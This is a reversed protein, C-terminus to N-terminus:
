PKLLERFLGIPAYGFSPTAPKAVIEGPEDVAVTGSDAFLQTGVINVPSTTHLAINGSTASVFGGDYNLSVWGTTGSFGGLLGQPRLVVTPIVIHRSVFEPSTVVVGKGAILRGAINEIRSASNLSLAQGANISAAMLGINSSGTASCSFYGCSQQFTVTGSNLSEIKIGAEGTLKVTDGSIQGARNLISSATIAVNGIGTVLGFENAIRSTGYDAWLRSTKESSLWLTRWSRNGSSAEQHLEGTGTLETENTFAGTANINIAQNSFLRGTKNLVSGQADISLDGSRGFFIALTSSGLSQNIVDGASIVTVAGKADPDKASAHAGDILAGQNVIGGSTSKLIIGGSAIVDTQSAGSVFTLDSGDLRIDGVAKVSSVDVTTNNASVVRVDQTADIAVRTAIITANSSLRVDQASTLAVDSLSMAGGSFLAVSEVTSWIAPKFSGSPQVTLKGASSLTVGGSSTFTSFIRQKGSVKAGSLSLDSETAEILVGSSKSSLETQRANSRVTVKPARIQVSKAAGVKADVIEVEGSSTLTFDQASAIADGGIRVGPGVDTVQLRITGAKVLGASSIDVSLGQSVGSVSGDVSAWDTSASAPSQAANFAVKSTGAVIQIKAAPDISQNEVPGSLKIQKSILDLETMAGSLGGTGISIMGGTTTLVPNQQADYTISGTALAVGGTNVFRGGDVAIGNPNAIIVNASPGLVALTGAISTTNASTVENIITRARVAENNLDVGAAPVNFDSYKNHSVGNAAAPAIDVTVHKDAGTRVVTPTTGAPVVSQAFAGTAPVAISVCVVLFRM